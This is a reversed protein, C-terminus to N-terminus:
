RCVCPPRDRLLGEAARHLRQVWEVALPNAAPYLRLAKRAGLLEKLAGESVEPPAPELKM